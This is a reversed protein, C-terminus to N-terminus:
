SWGLEDLRDDDIGFHHAVEHVVTDRVLHWLDHRSAARLEHPRRFITIHDPLLPNSGGRETRPVGEYLGLLLDGDYDDPPVDAISIQVNQMQQLLEQPLSLVASHVIRQFSEPTATRFGDIPRRRRDSPRRRYRGHREIMIQGVSLFTFSAQCVRLRM